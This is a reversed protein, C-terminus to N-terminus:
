SESKNNKSLFIAALNDCSIMLPLGIFSIRLDYVVLSTVEFYSVFEVKMTSTAM